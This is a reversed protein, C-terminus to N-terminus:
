YGAAAPVPRGWFGGLGPPAANHAHGIRSTFGMTGCVMPSLRTAGADNVISSGKGKGRHKCRPGCGGCLKEWGREV